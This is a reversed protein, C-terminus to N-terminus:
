PRITIPDPVFCLVFVAVLLLALMGRTRGLPLSDDLTPPHRIGMFLLLVLLLLYQFETASASRM